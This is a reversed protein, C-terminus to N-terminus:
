PKPLLKDLNDGARSGLRLIEPCVKRLTETRNYIKMVSEGYEYDRSIEVAGREELCTM